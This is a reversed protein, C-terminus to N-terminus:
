TRLQKQGINRSHTNVYMSSVCTLEMSRRKKRVSPRARSCVCCNAILESAYASGYVQMFWVCSLHIVSYQVWCLKSCQLYFRAFKAHEVVSIQHGTSVLWWCPSNPTDPTRRKTELETHAFCVHVFSKSKYVHAIETAEIKRFYMHDCYM